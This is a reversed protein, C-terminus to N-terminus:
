CFLSYKVDFVKFARETEHFWKILLSNASSICSNKLGARYYYKRRGRPCIDIDLNGHFGHTSDPPDGERVCKSKM